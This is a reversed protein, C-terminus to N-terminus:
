YLLGLESLISWALSLATRNEVEMAATVMECGRANQREQYALFFEALNNKVTEGTLILPEPHTALEALGAPTFGFAPEDTLDEIALPSLTFPRANPDNLDTYVHTAKRRM